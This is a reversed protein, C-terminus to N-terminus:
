RGPGSRILEGTETATLSLGVQEAVDRAVRASTVTFDDHGSAVVMGTDHLLAVAFLLEANM